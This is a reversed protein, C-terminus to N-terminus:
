QDPKTDSFVHEFGGVPLFRQREDVRLAGGVEARPGIQNQEIYAHGLQDAEPEELCVLGQGFRLLAGLDHGHECCRLM